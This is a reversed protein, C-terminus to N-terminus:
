MRYLCASTASCDHLIRCLIWISLKEYRTLVFTEKKITAWILTCGSVTLPIQIGIATLDLDIVYVHSEIAFSDLLLERIDGCFSPTCLTGPFDHQRILFDFYLTLRLAWTMLLARSGASFPNILHIIGLWSCRWWWCWWVSSLIMRLRYTRLSSSLGIQLRCFHISHSHSAIQTKKGFFKRYVTLQLCILLYVFWLSHFILIRHHSAGEGRDGNGGCCLVFLSVGVVFNVDTFPILKMNWMPDFWISQFQKEVYFWFSIIVCLHKRDSKNVFRFFYHLCFTSWKINVMM